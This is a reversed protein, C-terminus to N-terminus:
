VLRIDGKEYDCDVPMQKFAPGSTFYTEQDPLHSLEDRADTVHDSVTQDTKDRVEAWETQYVRERRNRRPVSRPGSPPIDEKTATFDLAKTSTSIVSAYATTVTRDLWRIMHALERSSTHHSLSKIEVVETPDHIMNHGIDFRRISGNDVFVNCRVIVGGGCDVSARLGYSHDRIQDDVVSVDWNWQRPIHKDRLKYLLSDPDLSMTGAQEDIEHQASYDEVPDSEIRCVSLMIRQLGHIAREYVEPHFERDDSVIQRGVGDVYHM